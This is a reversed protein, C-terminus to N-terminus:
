SNELLSSVRAAPAVPLDDWNRRKPRRRAPSPPTPTIRSVENKEKARITQRVLQPLCMSLVLAMWFLRQYQGSVFFISVWAGLLGAQLSLTITRLLKLDNRECTKRVDALSRFTWVFFCLYVLLAPFGMEAAVELYANHAIHPDFQIEGTSDYRVVFMKYNGLGVGMLPNHLAMKTGAVWGIWHEHTSVEDGPQPHMFRKIPSNPAFLLFPVMLALILRINRKRNPLHWVLYGLQTIIGLFGGRSAGLMIALFTLVFGIGCFIKAWWTRATITLNFAIPLVILAAVTFYNSDGFVYGPRFLGGYVGLGQRWERVIYLSAIGGSAIIALCTWYLRKVSDVIILVSVFLFFASTYMAMPNIFDLEQGHFGTNITLRGKLAFSMGAVGLFVMMWKSQPTEFFRPVTQRMALYALAYLTVLAGILKMVTLGGGIMADFFLHRMYPMAIIM